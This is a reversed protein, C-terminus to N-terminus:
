GKSNLRPCAKLAERIGPKLAKSALSVLFSLMLMFHKNFYLGKKSEPKSSYLKYTIRYM